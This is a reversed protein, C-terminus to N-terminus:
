FHELNGLVNNDAVFNDDISYEQIRLHCTELHFYLKSREQVNLPGGFIWKTLYINKLAQSALILGISSMDSFSIEGVPEQQAAIWSLLFISEPIAVDHM